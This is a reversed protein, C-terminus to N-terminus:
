AHSMAHFPHSHMTSISMTNETRHYTTLVHYISMTNPTRHHARYFPVVDLILRVTAYFYFSIFFVHTPYLLYPYIGWQTFFETNKTLCIYGTIFTGSLTPLCTFGVTLGWLNTVWLFVCSKTFFLSYRLKDMPNQNIFCFAKTKSFHDNISCLHRNVSPMHMHSPTSSSEPCPVLHTVNEDRVHLCKLLFTYTKVQIHSIANCTCKPPSYGKYSNNEIPCQEGWRPIM